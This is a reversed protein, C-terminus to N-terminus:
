ELAKNCARERCQEQSVRWARWLGDGAGHRAARRQPPNSEIQGRDVTYQRQAPPQLEDDDAEDIVARGLRHALPLLSKLFVM